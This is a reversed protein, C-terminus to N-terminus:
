YSFKQSCLNKRLSDGEFIKNIPSEKIDLM